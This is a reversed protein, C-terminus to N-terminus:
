VGTARPHCRPAFGCRLQDCAPRPLGEWQGSRAADLWRAAGDLLQREFRAVPPSDRDSLILPEGAGGRLFVLGTRVPVDAGVLGRAALAYCGLQFGYAAFPQAPQEAYKYDVVTVGGDEDELLLDVQGRLHLQPGGDPSDVRLLFPLERHV